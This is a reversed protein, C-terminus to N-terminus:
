HICRENFVLNLLLIIDSNKREKKGAKLHGKEKLNSPIAIRLTSLMSLLTLKAPVVLMEGAEDDMSCPELRGGSGKKCCVLVDVIYRDAAYATGTGGSSGDDSRMVSVVVGYGFDDADVKLRVIRGARLFHVCKDPQLVASMITKRSGAEVSQADLLKVVSDAGISMGIDEAEQRLSAVRARLEPIRKEYQFQSFSRAIVFEMDANGGEMRRLLNLLTYYTLKFSSDLPAASGKVMARCTAEDLKDDAMMIALGRDDKGRRGARGSMQIYEGSEVFRTAEGDWKRLTTFVVTKAPMNLGM